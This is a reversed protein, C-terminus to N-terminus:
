DDLYDVADCASRCQHFVVHDHICLIDSFIKQLSGNLGDCASGASSLFRM